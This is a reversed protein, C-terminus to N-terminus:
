LDQLLMTLTMYEKLDSLTKVALLYLEAVAATKSQYLEVEWGLDVVYEEINEYSQAAGVAAVVTRNAVGATRSRM